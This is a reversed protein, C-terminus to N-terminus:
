IISSILDVQNSLESSFTNIIEVILPMWYEYNKKIDITINIEGNTIINQIFEADFVKGCTISSYDLYLQYLFWDNDETKRFYLFFKKIKWYTLINRIYTYPEDQTGIITTVAEWNDTTIRINTIKKM